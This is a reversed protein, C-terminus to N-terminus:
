ALFSFYTVVRGPTSCFEISLKFVSLFIDSINHLIMIPGGWGLLNTAYTSYVLTITALHHSTMEYFDHKHRHYLFVTVLEDFYYTLKFLYVEVYFPPFPKCPYNESLSIDTASGFLTWHLFNSDKITFWSIYSLISYLFIKMGQDSLRDM